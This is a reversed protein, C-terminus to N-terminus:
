IDLLIISEYVQYPTTDRTTISPSTLSIDNVYGTLLPSTIRSPLFYHHSPISSPSIFGM